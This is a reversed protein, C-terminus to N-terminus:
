SKHPKQLYNISKMEKLRSITREFEFSLNKGLYLQEPPSEASIIVKVNRDYFEDILQIFRRTKDENRETLCPIDSIFVTHFLKSLEIYDAVARPSNFIQDFVFWVVDDALKYAPLSRHNIFLETNTKPRCPSLKIFYSDLRKQNERNLPYNYLESKQITYLRHDRGDEIKVTINHEKILQIAPIFRERQLGDKYLEDPELNSTLVLTVGNKFLAQLLGYLIMADTIDSVHFEDLCLLQYKRAFKKAILELPNKQGKYQELQEHIERIYRHFHLRYKNKIGLSEYFLDMMWTKGRGVGGWLYLGKPPSPKFFLQKIPSLFSSSQQACTIAQYLENFALIVKEQGKDPTLENNSLLENYRKLPSMQTEQQTYQDIILRLYSKAAEESLNM